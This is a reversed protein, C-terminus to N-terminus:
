IFHYLINLRDNMSLAPAKGKGAQKFRGMNARIVIM